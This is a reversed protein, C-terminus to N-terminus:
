NADRIWNCTSFITSNIIVYLFMSLNENLENNNSFIEMLQTISISRFAYLNTYIVTTHIEGIKTYGYCYGDRSQGANWRHSFSIMTIIDRLVSRTRPLITYYVTPQLPTMNINATNQSMSFYRTFHKVVRFKFVLLWSWHHTCNKNSLLIYELAFINQMETRQEHHM